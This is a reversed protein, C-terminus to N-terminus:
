RNESDIEARWNRLVDPDQMVELLNRLYGTGYASEFAAHGGNEVLRWIIWPNNEATRGLKMFDSQPVIPDDAAHLLVAPTRVRGVLPGIRTSQMFENLDALLVEENWPKSQFQRNRLVALRNEFAKRFFIPIENPPVAFSTHGPNIDRYHPLFQNEVLVELLHKQRQEWPDPPLLRGRLTLWPNEVDPPTAFRGLPRAPYRRLDSVPSIAIGSEFLRLGLRRDEMLAHMVTQASVGAGLLHIGSFSPQKRMYQGIEIWMRADDYAGISLMGNAALFPAASPHDLILVHADIRDDPRQLHHRYFRGAAKGWRDQLFGFGAIWLPRAPSTGEPHPFFLGGVRSGDQLTLEFPRGYPLGGSRFTKAPDTKPPSIWGDDRRAESDMRQPPELARLVQGRGYAPIRDKQPPGATCGAALLM